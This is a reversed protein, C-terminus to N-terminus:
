TFCSRFGWFFWPRTTTPWTAAGTADSTSCPPRPVRPALLGPPSHAARTRAGRASGPETPGRHHVAARSWGAGPASLSAGPPWPGAPAARRRRRRRARSPAGAKGEGQPPAERPLRQGTGAKPGDAQHGGRRERSGDRAARGAGTQCAYIVGKHHFWVKSIVHRKRGGSENPGVPGSRPDWSQKEVRQSGSNSFCSSTRNPNLSFVLMHNRSRKWEVAVMREKKRGM